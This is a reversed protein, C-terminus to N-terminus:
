QEKHERWQASQTGRPENNRTSGPLPDGSSRSYQSHQSGPYDWWPRNRVYLLIRSTNYETTLLHRTIAWQNSSLYRMNPHANSFRKLYNIQRPTPVPGVVFMMAVVAGAFHNAPNPRRIELDQMGAHVDLFGQPESIHFQGEVFLVRIWFEHSSSQDWQYM